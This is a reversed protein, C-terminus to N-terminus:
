LNRGHRDTRGDARFLEVGVKRIKM